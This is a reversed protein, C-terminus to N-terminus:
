EELATPNTGIPEYFQHSVRDYYGVTGDSERECPIGEFRGDVVFAGFLTGKFKASTASPSTSGICMDSSSEFEAETWTDDQTGPFGSSGTPTIVLDFREGLDQNRWQSKYTAGDYRMYKANAATSIYLSYNDTAQASTYCGFANCSADAALSVRVTDSGRLFFGTIKYYTASNMTIGAIQRYGIPVPREAWEALYAEVVSLPASPIEVSEGAIKALYADIRSVPVPLDVSEGAIKALYTEARTRPTPLDVTQGLIKALYYEERYLPQDPADTGEELIAALYREIRTIERTQETDNDGRKNQNRRIFM